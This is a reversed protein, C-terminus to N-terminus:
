VKIVTSNKLVELFEIKLLYFQKENMKELEEKTIHKKIILWEYFQFEIKNM